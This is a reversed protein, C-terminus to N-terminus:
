ETRKQSWRSHLRREPVLLPSRKLHQNLHRFAQNKLQPHVVKFEIKYDKKQRANLDEEWFFVGTAKDPEVQSKDPLRPNVVITENRSVPWRDFLKVPHKM